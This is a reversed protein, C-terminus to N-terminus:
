NGSLYHRISIAFHETLYQCAESVAGQLVADLIMLREQKIAEPERAEICRLERYPRCQLQLIQLQKFMYTNTCANLILAHLDEDIKLVTIRFGPTDEVESEELLKKLESMRGIDINTFWERLVLCEIMRRCELLDCIEKESLQRVICGYRPQQELIGERTLRILAERVPTRSVGLQRCLPEERMRSGLPFKGDFIGRLLKRYVEASLSLNQSKKETM